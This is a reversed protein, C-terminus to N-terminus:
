NRIIIPLYVPYEIVAPIAIQEYEHLDYVYSTQQSGTLPTGVILMEFGGDHHIGSKNAPSSYFWGVANINILPEPLPDKESWGNEAYKWVDTMVVGTTLNIGGMIYFSNESPLFVAAQNRRMDPRRPSFIEVNSFSTGNLPATQIFADPDSIEGGALYLTNSLVGASHGNRPGQPNSIANTTWSGFAQDYLWVYSEGMYGSPAGGFALFKGTLSAASFTGGARGGSLPTSLETDVRTWANTSPTFKWVDSTQTSSVSAGGMIFICDTMVGSAYNVRTSTVINSSYLNTWKKQITDFKKYRTDSFDGFLYANNGVINLSHTATVYIPPSDITFVATQSNQGAPHNAAQGTEQLGFLMFGVSIIAILLALLIHLSQKSM